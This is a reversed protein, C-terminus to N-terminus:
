INYKRPSKLGVKAVLTSWDFNCCNTGTSRVCRTKCGTPEVNLLLSGNVRAFPVVRSVVMKSLTLQFARFKKGPTPMHFSSRETNLYKSTVSRTFTRKVESKKLKKLWGTSGCGLVVVPSTSRLWCTFAGRIM